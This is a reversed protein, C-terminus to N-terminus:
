LDFDKELKNRKRKIRKRQNVCQSWFLKQSRSNKRVALKGGRDKDTPNQFHLLYRHCYQHIELTIM